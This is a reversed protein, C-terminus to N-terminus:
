MVKCSAQKCEYLMSSPALHGHLADRCLQVAAYCIFFTNDAACALHLVQIM